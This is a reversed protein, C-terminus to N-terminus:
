LAQESMLGEIDRHGLKFPHYHCVAYKMIEPPIRHRKYVAAENM